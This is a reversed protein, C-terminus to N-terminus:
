EKLKIVYRKDRITILMNIKEASGVYKNVELVIKNTVKKPTRNTVDAVFTKGSLVYEIKVFDQYFDNTGLKNQAYSSNEDLIMNGDMMLLIKGGKSPLGDTSVSCNDNVCYNYKYEFFEGMDFSDIKISSDHLNSESFKVTDGIKYINVTTVTNSFSPTINIEKYKATVDDKNYVLSDLVKIKYKKQKLSNDLEYVIALDYTENPGITDNYYPRAFDIFYGSRDLSPYYCDGNIELCFDHSDITKIEKSINTVKVKNALFITNERIVNGNYDLSSLLSDNFTFRFDHYTFAHDVSVFRNLSIIFKGVFFLLVISLLGGIAMFIIKNEIIYYRVERLYRRVIRKAKYDEGKINIEIEENDEEDLSIEDKINLFDGTTFDFGFTLLLLMVISVPVGYFVISTVGRIILAGSSEITAREAADLLGPIFLCYGILVVYFVIVIIYPIHNKNKRRFLAAVLSCFGIILLAAVIMLFSYYQSKVDSIKTVYGAYAFDNFFENLRYFMYALYLCPILIIFHLLKFKEVLFAFPKRIIM